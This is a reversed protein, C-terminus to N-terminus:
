FSAKYRLISNMIPLPAIDNSQIHMHVDVLPFVFPSNKIVVHSKIKNIIIDEKRQTDKTEDSM